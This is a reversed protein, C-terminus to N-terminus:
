REKPRVRLDAGVAEADNRPSRLLVFCGLRLGTIIQQTAEDSREECHRTFSLHPLCEQRGNYFGRLCSHRRWRVGCEKRRITDM